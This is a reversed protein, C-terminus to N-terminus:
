EYHLANVPNTKAVNFAHTAVTAAAILIGVIGAGILMGYPLGIREAFFNLYQSSAFFAIGLAIPTAWLVPTSFQWILLRVIQNNSAGLVKRIGIEKTKQEAMFAALGFLGFSALALAVFAISGLTSTALEFLMYVMQFIENLFQGQMPYDAYVTAWADEIDRVVSIPADKSIKVSALRYSGPRMFFFTPKVVNFLGLINRDAMVGVITYTTIGREDGEDEYFVQGVAADASEFGLTRVATENILVNVEGDERIHTDKAYEKSIDRGAVFPIDYTDAFSDDINIQHLSITSEFDNLIRSANISTNTQEYPVQSSLTFNEVYPVNMMENRLVEHRDEMQDVNLRNLTYIQDKPFIRSSEEVKSNQQYVVLVMALICVSFTFQVGIMIARILSAGRGKRASDRLADIPNTKTILYAPYSGAFGGVVMTTAILWPLEQIYNITLVKGSAANFMPIILELVSLSLLLSFFTITMSEVLFQTLLQKKNAGLTKRLGVERARGMSQAAALNTYNVCAIVLVVIGLVQVVDIVPLGLMAWLAMNQEQLPRVNFGSLFDRQDEPMHREYIGDMQTQLWDRDLNEPLLVYTLNGMSTSGWNTDPQFETIREMARVPVIVDLPRTMESAFGASFHTNAPLEDIVAAVTLDHEHDLTITKGMPDTDGFFKEAMTTSIIVSNSGDLATRNGQLFTLEFIDLLEPDAFRVNQYFNNEGVTVLFERFITRAVAEVQELDSKILPGVAGQVGDIQNLGLNSQPNVDGRITYIREANQFSLDHTKEYEAFLSGFMYIALGISLGLINIVAYLKNKLISRIAVKIYNKFM